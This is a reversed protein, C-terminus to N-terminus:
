LLRQQTIPQERRIKKHIHKMRRKEELRFRVEQMPTYPLDGLVEREYMVRHYMMMEDYFSKSCPCPCVSVDAFRSPNEGMFRLCMDRYRCTNYFEYSSITESKSEM